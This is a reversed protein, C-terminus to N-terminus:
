VRLLFQGFAPGEYRLGGVLVMVLNLIEVPGFSPELAILVCMDQAIDIEVAVLEAKFFELGLGMWFADVLV